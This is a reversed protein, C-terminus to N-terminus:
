ALSKLVRTIQTSDSVECPEFMLPPPSPSSACLVGRYALSATEVEARGMLECGVSPYDGGDLRSVGEALQFGLRGHGTRM